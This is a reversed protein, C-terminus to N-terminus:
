GCRARESRGAGGIKGLLRPRSVPKSTMVNSRMIRRGARGSDPRLALRGTQQCDARLLVAGQLPPVGHLLLDIEVLGDPATAQGTRRASGHHRGRAARRTGRLRPPKPTHRVPRTSRGDRGESLRSAACSAATSCAPTASCGCLLRVSSSASAFASRPCRPRPRASVPARRPACPGAFQPKEAPPLSRRSRAPPDPSCM